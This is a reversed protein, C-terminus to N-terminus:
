FKKRAKAFSDRLTDYSKAFGDKVQDWSEASSHKLGGYWEGLDNREKRLTALTARANKRAAEDMKDWNADIQREIRNIRADARDLAIKAQKLADDRQQITYNKIATGTEDIKRGVEKASGKEGAAQAAFCPSAGAILAGLALMSIRSAFGRIKM